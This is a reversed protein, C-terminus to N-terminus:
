RPPRSTIAAQGAGPLCAKNACREPEQWCTPPPEPKMMTVWCASWAANAEGKEAKHHKGGALAPATFAVALVLAAVTFMALRSNKQM